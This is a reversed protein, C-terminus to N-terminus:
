AATRLEGCAGEGKNEPFAAVVSARTPRGAGARGGGDASLLASGRAQGGRVGREAAPRARGRRAPEARPLGEQRRSGM